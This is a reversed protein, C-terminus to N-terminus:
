SPPRKRQAECAELETAAKERSVGLFTTREAIPLCGRVNAQLHLLWMQAMLSEGSAGDWLRASGDGSGTVVIRGDASFHASNIGGDHTMPVGLQAGTQASWLAAADGMGSTLLKSGDPSFEVRGPVGEDSIMPEGLPAGTKAAWLRTTGDLSATAVTLGDSSLRADFVQGAHKM